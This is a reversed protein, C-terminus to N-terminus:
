RPLESQKESRLRRRALLRDITNVEGPSRPRKRRAELAEQLRRADGSAIAAGFTADYAFTELEPALKLWGRPDREDTKQDM